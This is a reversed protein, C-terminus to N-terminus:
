TTERQTNFLCRSPLKGQDSTNFRCGSHVWVYARLSMGTAADIVTSSLMGARSDGILLVEKKSPPGYKCGAGNFSDRECNPDAWGAYSAKSILKEKFINSGELAFSCLSLTMVATAFLGLSKRLKLWSNPKSRYQKRNELLSYSALAVPYSGLLGLGAGIPSPLHLSVFLQHALYLNPLHVLYLSYSIDGLHSLFNSTLNQSPNTLIGLSVINVLIISITSNLNLLPSLFMIFLLGIYKERPSIRGLPRILISM